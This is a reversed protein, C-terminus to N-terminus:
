WLDLGEGWGGGEGLQTEDRAEWAEGIYERRWCM